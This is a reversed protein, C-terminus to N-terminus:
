VSSVRNSSLQKSRRTKWGENAVKRMIEIREEPTTNKWKKKAGLSGAQAKTLKEVTM